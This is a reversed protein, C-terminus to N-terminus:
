EQIQLHLFLGSIVIIIVNLPLETLFVIHKYTLKLHVLNCLVPNLKNSLIMIVKVLLIVQLDTKNRQKTTIKNITQTELSLQILKM